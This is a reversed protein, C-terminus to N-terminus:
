ADLAMGRCVSPAGGAAKVHTSPNVIITHYCGGELDGAAKEPGKNVTM